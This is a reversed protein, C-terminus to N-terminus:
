SDDIILLMSGAMMSRQHHNPTIEVETPPKTNHHQQHLNRLRSQETQGINHVNSTDYRNYEKKWILACAYRNINTQSSLYYYM